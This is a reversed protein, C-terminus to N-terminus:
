PNGYLELDLTPNTNVEIRLPQAGTADFAGPDPSAYEYTAVIRYDGPALSSFSYNGRMDARTERLEILRKRTVPDWGELFVPAGGSLSGSSKVVGHITGQGTSLTIGPRSFGNVVLENWGDPRPNPTNNPSGSFRSVYYGDPPSVMLEWRGPFLLIGANPRLAFSTTEGQGALDKRRVFGKMAAGAAAGDVAFTTERIQTMQLAYGTLNREIAVESYGGWARNGPPGERAEAYLEYRGPPLAPFHFAPGQSTTRGMGSALTVTVTLGIQTPVSALGSLDFLRGAIPRVDGDGTDEDQYVMLPRAAEVRLTQRSFTPLYSQDDDVNGLTGVLYRGPDLGGIRFMGRDDTKARSVFRPPQSDTYAGVDQDPIGVENGDRVTGTIGGYRSMPIQITIPEDGEVVLVSGASNWRRQGYQAPMFGRRSAKIVYSGPTVVFEFRGTDNTRTTREQQGPGVPQITVIARSLAYGTRKEVITGRLLGAHATAAFVIAVCAIKRFTSDV